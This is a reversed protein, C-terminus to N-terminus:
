EDRMKEIFKTMQGSIFNSCEARAKSNLPTMLLYSATLTYSNNHTNVLGFFRRNEEKLKKTMKIVVYQKNGYDDAVSEGIVEDTEDVEHISSELNLTINKAIDAIALFDGGYIKIADFVIDAIKKVDAQFTKDTAHHHKSSYRGPGWVSNPNAENREHEERERQLREAEEQERREEEPKVETNYIYILDNIRGRVGDVSHHDKQYGLPRESTRIDAGSKCGNCHIIDYKHRSFVSTSFVDRRWAWLRRTNMCVFCDVNPVAKEADIGRQVLEQDSENKLVYIQRLITDRMYDNHPM